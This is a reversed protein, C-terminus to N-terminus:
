RAQYPWKWHVIRLKDVGNTRASGSCEIQQNKFDEKAHASARSTNTDTNLENM